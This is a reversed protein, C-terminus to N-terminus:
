ERGGVAKGSRMEVDGGDADADVCAGGGDGGDALRKTWVSRAGSSGGIFVGDRMDELEDRAEREGM